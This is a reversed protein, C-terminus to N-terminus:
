AGDRTAGLFHVADRFDDAPWARVQDPTMGYRAAVMHVLVRYPLRVPKGDAYRM